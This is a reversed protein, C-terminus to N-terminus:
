DFAKPYRVRWPGAALAHARLAFAQYANGSYVSLLNRAAGRTFGFRKYYAPDGLVAVADFGMAKCRVLGERILAGGIGEGQRHPSVSVPALGCLRITAPEVSLKSFLIHGDLSAAASVLELVADNDARLRNVLEAEDSRGFAAAVLAYIADSDAAAAVRIGNVERM